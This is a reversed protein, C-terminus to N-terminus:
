VKGALANAVVFSIIVLSEVLALGLIMPLFIKGYASPNRGISELAASIAKGQSLTGGIAALGIALGAGIAVMGGGGVTGGEAFAFSPMLLAVALFAIVFNTYNKM